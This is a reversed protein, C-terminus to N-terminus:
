SKVYSVNMKELVLISGNSYIKYYADDGSDFTIHKTINGYKVTLTNLVNQNAIIIENETIYKEPITIEYNGGGNISRLFYSNPLIDSEANAFDFSTKESNMVLYNDQNIAFVGNYAKAISTIRGGGGDVINGVIIGKSGVARNLQINELCILSAGIIEFYLCNNEINILPHEWAEDNRLNVISLANLNYAKLFYVTCVENVCNNFKFGNYNYSNNEDGNLKVGIKGSFKVNDFHIENIWKSSDRVCDVCIETGALEINKFEIYQSYTYGTGVTNIKICTSSTIKLLDIVLNAGNIILAPNTNSCTITGAGKLKRDTGKFIISDTIYYNKNLVIEKANTDFAKQIAIKDDHTGDGYAGFIEPTINTPLVIEAVLTNDHLAILNAEDVVDSVKLQRVKYFCGGGDNISNFGLTKATSGKILKTSSKMDSVTDFCLASNMQLYASIIEALDGSAAMADLKNNIEQQVDLNEFYNAVYNQLEKLVETNNNVVPVVENELYKVLYTLAEYYSMSAIYSSPLAGITVCLKKFPRLEQINNM